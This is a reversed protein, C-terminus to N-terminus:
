VAPAGDAGAKENPPLRKDAETSTSTAFARAKADRVEDPVRAAKGGAGEM